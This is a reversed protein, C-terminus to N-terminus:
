PFTLVRVNASSSISASSSLYRRATSTPISRSRRYTQASQSPQLLLLLSRRGASTPSACVSGLCLSARGMRRAWRRRSSSARTTASGLSRSSSSRRGTPGACASWSHAHLPSVAARSRRTARPIPSALPACVPPEGEGPPPSAGAAPAAGRASPAPDNSARVLAVGVALRRQCSPGSPPRREPQDPRTVSRWVAPPGAATEADIWAVPRVPLRV